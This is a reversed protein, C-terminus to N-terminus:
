VCNVYNGRRTEVLFVSMSLNWNWGREKLFACFAEEALKYPVGSPTTYRDMFVGVSIEFGLDLLFNENEIIDKLQLGLTSVVEFQFRSKREPLLHPDKMGVPMDPNEKFLDAGYFFKENFECFPEKIWIIDGYGLGIGLNKYIFSLKQKGSLEIVEPVSWCYPIKRM